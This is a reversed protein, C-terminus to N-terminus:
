SGQPRSRAPASSCVRGDAVEQPPMPAEGTAFPALLRAVTAMDAPRQHPDKELMALVILELDLPLDAVQQRPPPPLQTIHQALVAPTDGEFPPKGTLMEYLTIGLAYIDSRSDAVQGAAQEPSMYDPSGLITGAVTHSGSSRLRALGFDALKPTGNATLLVNMPKIDRHVIDREHAVQMAQAIQWAFRAAEHIALRGRSEILAALDGGDVYEMAIWLRGQDEILDYVQTINAHTLRALTRAEQRFRELRDSDSTLQVPLEKLAVERDLVRDTARYVVGMGGRGVELELRYRGEPGIAGLSAPAAQLPRLMTAAGTDASPAAPSSPDHGDAEAGGLPDPVLTRELDRVKARLSAEHAPDTALSMSSRYLGLSEAPATALLGDAQRERERAVDNARAAAVPVQLWLMIGVWLGAGAWAAATWQDRRIERRPDVEIVRRPIFGLVKKEVVVDPYLRTLTANLLPPLGLSLGVALTLLAIQSARAGTLWLLIVSPKRVVGPFLTFAARSQHILERSKRALRAGTDM